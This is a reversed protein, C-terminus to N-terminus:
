LLGLHRGARCLAAISTAHEITGDFAAVLAQRLPLTRAIMDAEAVEPRRGVSTLNQALFLHQVGTLAASGRTQGLPIWTEATLGAEEALERRAAPLPDEGPKLTGAPVEWSVRNWPHRWQRVLVTNGLEFVPVMWVASPTEIVRHDTEGGEPWRLTDMRLGVDGARAVERSSVVQFPREPAPELRWDRGSM